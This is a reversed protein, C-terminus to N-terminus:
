AEEKAKFPRGLQNYTSPPATRMRVYPVSCLVKRNANTIHAHVPYQATFSLHLLRTGAVSHSPWGVLDTLNKMDAAETRVKNKDPVLPFRISFDLTTCYKCDTTYSRISPMSAYTELAGHYGCRTRSEQGCLFAM